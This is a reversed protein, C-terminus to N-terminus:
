CKCGRRAVVIAFFIFFLRADIQERPHASGSLMLVRTSKIKQYYHMGVSASRKGSYHQRLLPAPSAAELRFGWAARFLVAM